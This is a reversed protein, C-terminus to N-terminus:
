LFKNKLPNGDMLPFKNNFLITHEFSIKNFFYKEYFHHM